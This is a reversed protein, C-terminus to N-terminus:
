VLSLFLSLKFCLMWNTLVLLHNAIPIPVINARQKITGNIPPIIALKAQITEVCPNMMNKIENNM